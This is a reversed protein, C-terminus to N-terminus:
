LNNQNWVSNRYVEVYYTDTTEDYGVANGTWTDNDIAWVKGTEDIIMNEDHRDTNGVVIDMAFIQAIDEFHDETIKIVGEDSDASKPHKGKIFAQCSRDGAGLDVAETQPVMDWGITEALDHYGTEGIVDMEDGSYKYIAKHGGEFECLSLEMGHASEPLGAEMANLEDTM